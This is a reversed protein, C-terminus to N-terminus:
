EWLMCFSVVSTSTVGMAAAGFPQGVSLLTRTTAGVIAETITNGLPAESILAVTNYASVGPVPTMYYVPITYANGGFLTTTLGFPVGVSANAGLWGGNSATVPAGNIPMFQSTLYSYGQYIGPQSATGTVTASNTILNISDGTPNGSTDNSRYIMFAGMSIPTTNFGNLKWTMGVNGVTMNVCFRSVYSTVSSSSAGGSAVAQRTSVNGTLTGSGNSGQGFSIFMQPNTPAATGAGYELKIVVPSGSALTAVNVHFGTGTGGISAALASLQDCVNYGTGATTITVTTVVGGAVVVTAQAGTGTGGTLPVATYTGNTYASGGVLNNTSAIPGLSLPDTFRFISYGAATNVVVPRTVTATNVQGTDNTVSLTLTVSLATIMETIWNRFGADSTNDLVASSSTTNAM